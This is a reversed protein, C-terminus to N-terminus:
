PTPKGGEAWQGVWVDWANANFNAYSMSFDPKGEYADAGWSGRCFIRRSANDHGAAVVAHGGIQRDNPGPDPIHELPGNWGYASRYMLFGFQVPWGDSLCALVEDLTNLRMYRIVQRREARAYASPSPNRRWISNEPFIGTQPDALSAANFRPKLISAPLVGLKNAAKWMNRIEAGGDEEVYGGIVRAERYLWVPSPVFPRRHGDKLMTAYLATAGSYGVCSSTVSQDMVPPLLAFNDSKPLVAGAAVPAAYRRHDRPDPADHRLGLGPLRHPPVNPMASLDPPM